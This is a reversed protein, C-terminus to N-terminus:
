NHIIAKVPTALSLGANLALLSYKHDKSDNDMNDSHLIILM